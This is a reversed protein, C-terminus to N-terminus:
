LNGEINLIKTNFELVLVIIIGPKTKINHLKGASIYIEAFNMILYKSVVIM